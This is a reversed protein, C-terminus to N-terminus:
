PLRSWKEVNSMMERGKPSELKERCEEPSFGGRLNRVQARGEDFVKSALDLYEESAGRSKAYKLFAVKISTPPEVKCTVFRQALRGYELAMEKLEERTVVDLAAASTSWGADLVLALVLLRAAARPWSGFNGARGM